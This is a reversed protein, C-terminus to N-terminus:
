KLALPAEPACSPASMDPLCAEIATIYQRLFDPLDPNAESKAKAESLESAARTAQGDHALAYALIAQFFPGNGDRNEQIETTAASFYAEKQAMNDFFSDPEYWMANLLMFFGFPATTDGMHDALAYARQMPPLTRVQEWNDSALYTELDAIEVETFERYIPLGNTPCAPMHTKWDCSTVPRFSMTRGMTSCSSTSTIEFKEGGVPCTMPVNIPSGALATQACCIVLLLAFPKM